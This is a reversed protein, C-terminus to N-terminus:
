SNKQHRELTPPALTSNLAKRNPREIRHALNTIRMTMEEGAGNLRRLDLVWSFLSAVKPNASALRVEGGAQRVAYLCQLLYLRGTHDIEEIGCLDLILKKQGMLVLDRVLRELAHSETGAILSGVVRVVTIDPEIRATEFRRM